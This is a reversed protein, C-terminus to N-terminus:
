FKTEKILNKGDYQLYNPTGSLMSYKLIVDIIPKYEELYKQMNFFSNVYSNTLALEINEIQGTAVLKKIKVIDELQNETLDM